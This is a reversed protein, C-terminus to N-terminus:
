DCDVDIMMAEGDLGDIRDMLALMEMRWSEIEREREREDAFQCQM